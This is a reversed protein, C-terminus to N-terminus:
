IAMCPHLFLKASWQAIITLSFFASALLAVSLMFRSRALLAEPDGPDPAERWSRLAVWGGSLALPLTLLTVLHLPLMTQETCAIRVLAYDANFGIVWAIPPALFAFWLARKSPGRGAAGFAAESSSRIPRMASV